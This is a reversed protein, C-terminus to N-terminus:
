RRAQLLLTDSYLFRDGEAGIGAELFLAHRVPLRGNVFGFDIAFAHKLTLEAHRMVNPLSVILDFTGGEHSIGEPPGVARRLAALSASSVPRLSITACARFTPRFPMSTLTTSLLPLTLAFTK